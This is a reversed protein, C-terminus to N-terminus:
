VHIGMGVVTHVWKIFKITEKVAKHKLSRITHVYCVFVHKQIIESQFCAQTALTFM